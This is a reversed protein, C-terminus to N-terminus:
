QQNKIDVMTSPTEGREVVVKCLWICIYILQLKEPGLARLSLERSAGPASLYKCSLVKFVILM